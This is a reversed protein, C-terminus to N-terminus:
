SLEARKAGHISPDSALLTRLRAISALTQDDLGLLDIILRKDLDIRTPDIACRHFSQFTRDQFDRWIAQAEDLQWPQLSRVDLTPLKELMGKRGIGRGHQAANAHDAHILLGLTSNCWLAIATEQQPRPGPDDQHATVSFWSNVGLTRVITHTAMIRQSNYRITPTIQLTAAQAWIPGHDRGTQPYLRANPDTVLGQHVKQSHAWLAPFQAQEDWGHYSDYVGISGRIRRDQPGVNCVDQMPAIPIKAVVRSGDAAWLEGRELAAAFQGTQGQWWRAATWPGAAVPGDLLEGWQEGGVFLPSGGIAPGDSRHAPASAVANITNVLALADTDRYPARWLNVFLGRGSPTEDDRLRRAVLLAEAIDTDYSMSRLEPDHSSVVFEIAYRSALMQRVDRWSEGALATVPLVLAARGGPRVLRDALVTFSTGHGATQNAPTGKLLASTRRAVAQQAEADGEPLALVRALAEGKGGDSGRRTYPPNSIVLDARPRPVARRAVGKAGVQEGTGSFDSQAEPAELWDLSGLRIGGSEDVGMHLSHLQMQTFGVSPSMAALTAATLHIVAQVVDAGFLTHEVLAQHLAADTEQIGATAPIVSAPAAAHNQVIQQYAAMLLTGTGCAPDVVRLQRMNATDSWDVRSWREPALALGALLTASPISTYFAALLKRETILENFIRGALDHRGVAGM